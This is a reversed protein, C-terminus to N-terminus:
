VVEERVKGCAPCHVFGDGRKPVNALDHGCSLCPESPLRQAGCAPCYVYGDGRKAENAVDHGCAECPERPLRWAGGCEACVVCGDGEPAAAGLDYGCSPCRKEALMADAIAVPFQKRFFGRRSLLLLVPLPVGSVVLIVEPPWHSRRVGVVVIAMACMLVLGIVGALAYIKWSMGVYRPDDALPDRARKARDRIRRYEVASLTSADALAGTGYGTGYLEHVRGRDDRIRGRLVGM